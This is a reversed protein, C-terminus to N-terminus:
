IYMYKPWKVYIICIIAYPQMQNLPICYADVYRCHVGYYILSRYCYFASRLRPCISGVHPSRTTPRPTPKTTKAFPYSRTPPQTVKKKKCACYRSDLVENDGCTRSCKCRCTNYDFTFGSRCRTNYRPCLRECGCVAKNFKQGHPCSREQCKCRCQDGDWQFGHRCGLYNGCQCQCTHPNMVKPSVCSSTPCVCRCTDPNFNQGRPCSKKRCKCRCQDSDWWYGQRCFRYNGCQCQCTHPNMVKPSACSSTPCVCRCTEPDVVRNEQCRIYKPCECSCSLSDYVQFFPPCDPNTEM